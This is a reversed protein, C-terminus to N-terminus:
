SGIHINQNNSKPKNINWLYETAVNTLTSRNHENETFIDILFDTESQLYKETCIKYAGSIFGKFVEMAIDPGISSNLKILVNTLSTKQFIKFDNSNNGTNTITVDLFNLQKNEIKITYQVLPDQSNLTKPALNVTLAQTISIHEIWIFCGYNIFRYAGLKGTDM